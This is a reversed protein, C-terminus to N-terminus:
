LLGPLLRLDVIHRNPVSLGLKLLRSRLHPPLSKYFMQIYFMHYGPCKSTKLKVWEQVAMVTTHEGRSRVSVRCVGVRYGNMKACTM